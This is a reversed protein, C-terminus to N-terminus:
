QNLRKLIKIVEKRAERKKIDHFLNKGLDKNKSDTVFHKHLLTPLDWQQENGQYNKYRQQQLEVESLALIDKLAHIINTKQEDNECQIEANHLYLAVPNQNQSGCSSLTISLFVILFLERDMEIKKTLNDM